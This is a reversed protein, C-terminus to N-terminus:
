KAQDKEEIKTEVEAEVVTAEGDITRGSKFSSASGNEAKQNGYFTTM